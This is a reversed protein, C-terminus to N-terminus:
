DNLWQKKSFDLVRDKLPILQTGYVKTELNNHFYNEFTKQETVPIQNNRRGDLQWKWDSKLYKQKSEIEPYLKKTQKPTKTQKKKSSTKGM